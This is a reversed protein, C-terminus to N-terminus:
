QPLEGLTLPFLAITKQLAIQRRSLDLQTEHWTHLTQLVDLLTILNQEYEAQYQRYQSEATLVTTKALRCETELTQLANQQAWLEGVANRFAEQLALTELERQATLIDKRINRADGDWLAWHANLGLMGTQTEDHKLTGFASVQPWLSWTWADLELELRQLTLQHQRLDPRQYLKTESINKPSTAQPRALRLNPDIGTLSSLRLMAHRQQHLYEAKQLQLRHLSLQLSTLASPKRKGIAIQDKLWKQQQVLISILTDTHAAADQATLADFYLTIANKYHTLQQTTEDLLQIEAETKLTDLTAQREANPVLPLTASLATSLGRKSDQDIDGQAQAAVQLHYPADALRVNASGQAATLATRTAMPMTNRLAHYMESLTLTAAHLPLTMLCLSFVASFLYSM